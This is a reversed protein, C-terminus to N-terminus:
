YQRGGECNSGHFANFAEHVGKFSSVTDNINQVINTFRQPYSFKNGNFNWPPQSVVTPCKWFSCQGKRVRGLLCKNLDWLRGKETTARPMECTGYWWVNYANWRLMYRGEGLVDAEETTRMRPSCHYSGLCCPKRQEQEWWVSEVNAWLTWMSGQSDPM